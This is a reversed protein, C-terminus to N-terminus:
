DFLAIKSRAFQKSNEHIERFGRKSYHDAATRFSCPLQM